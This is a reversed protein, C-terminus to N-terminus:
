QIGVLHWKGVIATSYGKGKLGEAITTENYPLGSLFFFHSEIKLMGSLFGNM